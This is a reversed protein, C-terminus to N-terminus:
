VSVMDKEIQAQRSMIDLCVMKVAKKLNMKPVYFTSKIEENSGQLIRMIHVCGHVYRTLPNDGSRKPGHMVSMWLIDQVGKDGM